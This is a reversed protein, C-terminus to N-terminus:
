DGTELCDSCNDTSYCCNCDDYNCDFSQCDNGCDCYSGDSESGQNDNGRVTYGKYKVVRIGKPIGGTLGRAELLNFLNQELSLDKQVRVDSNIFM